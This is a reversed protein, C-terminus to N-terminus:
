HSHSGTRGLERRLQEVEAKLHRKEHAQHWLIDIWLGVLVASFNFWYAVAGFAVLSGVISMVIILAVNLMGAISGPFRWNLYILILGNIMDMATALIWNLPRIGGGQLESAVAQAVLEVGYRAGVPTIYEDRAARYTGGVIVIADRLPSNDAWYDKGAATLLNRVNLRNFRYQEGAFNLVLADAGAQAELAEIRECEPCPGETASRMARAYQKAIAWPLSDVEGSLESPPEAKPSPFYRQYRRVVGDRDQPYLVLGSPPETMLEHGKARESFKGGLIPLRVIEFGHHGADASVPYGDRAWVALPWDHNAFSPDSTEVDVGIARPKGAAIATLVEQLKDANLPSKGGFVTRYDEDDITVIVVNSPPKQGRFLVLSDLAFSEFANLWGMHELALTLLSFAVLVPLQHRLVKLFPEHSQAPVLIKRLGTQWRSM